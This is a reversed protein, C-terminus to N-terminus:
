RNAPQNPPPPHLAALTAAYNQLGAALGEAIKQRFEPTAVRRAEADNSLYACEVLAGPCDLMRLVALRGRKFGRDPTKLTARMARHLQEGLLLNAYDFKNGPFAVKTMEDGTDDATSLMFQPALTYTEIGNVSEAAHNFHISLYVDAQNKNAFDDRMLLDKKKDRSLERDDSRILLVRWGQTELIKKLRTAIELTFTKENLGLRKNETGPDIGGHGPDIVIIKPPPPLFAVHDIPRFLPAVLKIVDLRTVWLKGHELIVNEGFFVRLGDFYCDRQHAEFVFRVGTADSLTMVQEPKTWATKLEFRAAIDHVSVYETNHIRTTPWLRPEAPRTPQARVPVAAPAPVPVPAPAVSASSPPAPSPSDSKAPAARVTVGGAILCTSVVWRPVFFRAMSM